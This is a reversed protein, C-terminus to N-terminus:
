TLLNEKLYLAPLPPPAPKSTETLTAHSYFGDKRWEDLHALFRTLKDGDEM